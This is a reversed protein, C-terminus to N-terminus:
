HDFKKKYMNRKEMLSDVEFGSIYFCYYLCYKLSRNGPVTTDSRWRHGMWYSEVMLSNLLVNRKKLLTLNLWVKDNLFYISYTCSDICNLHHPIIHFWCIILKKNVYGWGRRLGDPKLQIKATKVVGAEAFLEALGEDTM